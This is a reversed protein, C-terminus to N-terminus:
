SASAASACVKQEAAERSETMQATFRERQMQATHEAQAREMQRKM